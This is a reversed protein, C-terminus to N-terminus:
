NLKSLIWKEITDQCYELQWVNNYYWVGDNKELLNENIDFPSSFDTKIFQVDNDISITDHEEDNENYQKMKVCQEDFTYCFDLSVFNNHDITLTTVANNLGDVLKNTYTLIIVDSKDYEFIDNLKPNQLLLQIIFEM